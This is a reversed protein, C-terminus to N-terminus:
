VAILVFRNLEYLYRVFDFQKILYTRLQCHISLPYFEFRQEHKM